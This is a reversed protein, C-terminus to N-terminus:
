AVDHEGTLPDAVAAGDGGRTSFRHQCGPLRDGQLQIVATQRRHRHVAAHHIGQHLVPPQYRGSVPLHVQRRFTLVHQQVRHHVVATGNLRFPQFAPTALNHQVAAVASHHVLGPRQQSVTMGTLATFDGQFTLVDM